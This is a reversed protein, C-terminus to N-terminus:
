RSRKNAFKHSMQQKREAQLTALKQRQEATLVQAIAHQTEVRKIFRQKTKEAQEDALANLAKADLTSSSALANIRQQIQQHEAMMKSRDFGNHQFQMITKIKAKQADTLNLADFRKLMKDQYGTQAKATVATNTTAPAAQVGGTMLLTSSAVLLSSMLLKKMM